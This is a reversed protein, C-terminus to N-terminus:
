SASLARFPVLDDAPLPLNSATSGPLAQQQNRAGWPSVMTRVAQQRGISPSTRAVEVVDDVQVVSPHDEDDPVHGPHPNGGRLLRVVDLGLHMAHEAPRVLWRSRELEQLLLHGPGPDVDEGGHREGHHIGRTAHDLDGAGAM